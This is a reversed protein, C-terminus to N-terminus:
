PGTDGGPLGDDRLPLRVTFTTGRGPRSQVQITGGHAEAIWRSIALGLGVGSREGTRSRAPDARWFRDFVHPLDGPAIGVGTDRVSLEVDTGKLEPRIEVRGDPPTYKIANTVLNLLLQRLRLRDAPVVVPVHPISVRVHVGAQEGLIGATESVEALLDRLDVQEKHLPARGEDARALTLLGEVIATMRNVEGLTEDLVEMVEPAVRPHTIAREIGSRLVTLPTKLEHSADATFRRLSSFSLELRELMANLTDTLRALEDDTALSALRKHLSRGDSIAKVEDVIRNVPQLTRGALLYGILTSAALIVPLLLVSVALLRRPGIVFRSARAGSFVAAIEPGADTVPRAYYHLEGVPPGLDLVGAGGEAGAAFAVGLLRSLSEYPLARAEPSVHLVDGGSAVVVVYGPIGELFPSVDPLLVARGTRPDDVVLPGRARYAEGLTAAILNSELQARADLEELSAGRQALYVIIAFVLTTGALALVYSAALRARITRM